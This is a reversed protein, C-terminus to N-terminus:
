ARLEAVAERGSWEVLGRVADADLIETVRGRIVASGVTGPRGGRRMTTIEQEIVDDISEVVMGVQRVGDSHVLVHLLENTSRPEGFVESQYVLPLIEGRYQVV